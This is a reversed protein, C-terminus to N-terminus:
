TASGNNRVFCEFPLSASAALTKASGTSTWGGFRVLVTGDPRLDGEEVTTMVAGGIPGAQSAEGRWAGVGSTAGGALQRLPTAGDEAVSWPALRGLPAEGAWRSSVGIELQDGPVAAITVQPAGMFVVSTSAFTADGSTRIGTVILPRARALLGIVLAGHPPYFQVVVRDGAALTDGTANRVPTSLSDADLIIQALDDIAEYSVVSGIRLVPVSVARRAMDPIQQQLMRLDALTLFRM